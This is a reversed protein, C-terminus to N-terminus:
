FYILSVDLIVCKCPARKMKIHLLPGQQTYRCCHPPEDSADDCNPVKNCVYQYNICQGSDCRFQGNPCTPAPTVTCIISKNLSVMYYLLGVTCIARPSHIPLSSTPVNWKFGRYLVPSLCHTILDGWTADALVSDIDPVPSCSFLYTLNTYRFEDVLRSPLTQPVRDDRTM